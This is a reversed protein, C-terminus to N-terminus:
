KQTSYLHWCNPSRMEIEYLLVMTILAGYIYKEVLSLDKAFTKMRERKKAVCLLDMRNINSLFRLTLINSAKYWQNIELSGDNYMIGLKYRNVFTSKTSRIEVINHTLFLLTLFFINSIERKVVNWLQTPHFGLTNTTSDLYHNRTEPIGFYMQIRWPLPCTCRSGM